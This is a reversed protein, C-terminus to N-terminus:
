ENTILLIRFTKVSWDNVILKYQNYNVRNFKIEKFRNNNM